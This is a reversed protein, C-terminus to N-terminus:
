ATAALAVPKIVGLEVAVQVVDLHKDTIIGADTIKYFLGHEKKTAVGRSVVLKEGRAKLVRNIKKVVADRARDRMQKGGHRLDGGM